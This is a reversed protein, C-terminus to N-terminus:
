PSPPPPTPPLNPMRIPRRRPPKSTPRQTAVHKNSAVVAEPLNNALKSAQAKTIEAPVAPVSILAARQVPIQETRTSTPTPLRRAAPTAPQKLNPFTKTATQTSKTMLDPRAMSALQASQSLKERKLLQTPKSNALFEESDEDDNIRPRKRSPGVSSRAGKTSVVKEDKEVIQASTLEYHPYNYQTTDDERSVDEGTHGHRTTRTRQIAMRESM